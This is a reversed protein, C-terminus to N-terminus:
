AAAVKRALPLFKSIVELSETPREGLVFHGCGPFLFTRTGEVRERLVRAEEQTDVLTDDEGGLYLVPTKLESLRARLDYAALLRLRWTLFDFQGHALFDEICDKEFKGPYRRELRGLKRRIYSQRWKEPSADWLRAALLLRTSNPSRTFGGALVLASAAHPHRLAIMLALASGFSDGLWIANSLGQEALAAVCGDALEELTLRSHGPYHLRLVNFIEESQHLFNSSLIGSGEIGPLYVVCPQGQGKASLLRSM